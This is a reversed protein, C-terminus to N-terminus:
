PVPYPETEGRISAFYAKLRPLDGEAVLFCALEGQRWVWIPTEADHLLAPRFGGVQVRQREPLALAGPWALAVYTVLRGERDVYHLALGRQRELYVPQAAFFALHEDGQFVRRLGIGSESALAAPAPFAVAHRPGWLAVSAHEAVVARVLQETPDPPAPRPLLPVFAFVLLLAAGLAAVPVALWATRARRPALVAGAAARLAPPAARRPLEAALRRGLAEDSDTEHGSM